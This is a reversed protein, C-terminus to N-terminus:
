YLCRTHNGSHVMSVLLISERTCIQTKSNTTIYPPNNGSPIKYSWSSLHAQHKDSLVVYSYLILIVSEGRGVMYASMGSQQHLIVLCNGRGEGGHLCVHWVTSALDVSCGGGGGHMCAHWIRSGHVNHYSFISITLGVPRGFLQHLIFPFLINLNYQRNTQWITSATHFSVSYQSQVAQQDVLFNICYSLFCFISITSGVPRGFLQHLIFSFYQSLNGFTQYLIFALFLILHLFLCRELYFM